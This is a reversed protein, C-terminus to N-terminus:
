TSRNWRQPLFLPLLSISLSGKPFTTFLGQLYGQYSPRWRVLFPPLGGMYFRHIGGILGVGVGVVPGYTLGSIMPSFDRINAIAGEVRVGAYSSFISLISFTLMLGIQHLPGIRKTIVENFLKKKIILYSVAIITCVEVFLLVSTILLLFYDM